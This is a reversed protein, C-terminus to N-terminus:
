KCASVQEELRHLKIKSNRHYYNVVVEHETKDITVIAVTSAPITDYHRILWGGNTKEEQVNLQYGQWKHLVCKKVDDPSKQTVFSIVPETHKLDYPTTCGSINLICILTAVSSISKLKM